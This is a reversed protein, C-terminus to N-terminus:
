RAPEQMILDTQVIGTADLTDLLHLIQVGGLWLEPAIDALPKLVFARRELEPHPITLGEEAVHQDGFTLIDIDLTRAGWREQRKRGAESEIGLVADLLARPPLETEIGICLNLFGPQDSVGWPPTEYVPSTALIRTMPLDALRALAFRLNAARDGLSSPLNSGLGLYATTM